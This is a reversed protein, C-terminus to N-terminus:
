FLFGIVYTYAAGLDTLGTVTGIEKGHGNLPPTFPTAKASVM